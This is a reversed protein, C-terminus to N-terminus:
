CVAIYVISPVNGWFRESVQEAGGSWEKTPVSKGSREVITVMKYQPNCPALNAATPKSFQSTLLTLTFWNLDTNPAAFRTVEHVRRFIASEQFECFTLAKAVPTESWGASQDTSM